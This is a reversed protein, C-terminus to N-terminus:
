GIPARDPRQGSCFDDMQIAMALAVNYAQKMPM